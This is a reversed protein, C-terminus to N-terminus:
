RTIVLAGPSLAQGIVAVLKMRIYLCGFFAAVAFFALVEELPYIGVTVGLGLRQIVHRQRSRQHLLDFGVPLPVDLGSGDIERGLEKNGPGEPGTNKAESGSRPRATM